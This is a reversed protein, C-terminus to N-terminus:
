WERAAFRAALPGCLVALYPGTSCFMSSVPVSAARGYAPTRLGETPDLVPVEAVVGGARLHPSRAVPRRWPLRSPVGLFVRGKSFWPVPTTVLTVPDSRARWRLQSRRVPAASSAALPRALGASGPLRRAAAAGQRTAMNAADSRECVVSWFDSAARSGLTAAVHRTRSRQRSLACIRCEGESGSPSTAITDWAPDIRRCACRQLPEVRRSLPFITLGDEGRLRPLSCSAGVPRWQGARVM